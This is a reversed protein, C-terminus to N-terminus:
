RDPTYAVVRIPNTANTNYRFRYLLGPVINFTFAIEDHETSTFALTSSIVEHWADELASGNHRQLINGKDDLIVADLAINVAANTNTTRAGQITLRGSGRLGCDRSTFTPTVEDEANLVVNINTM